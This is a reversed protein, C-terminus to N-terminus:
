CPNFLQWSNSLAAQILPTLMARIYILQIFLSEITQNTTLSFSVAGELLRCQTRPQIIGCSQGIQLHTQHRDLIWIFGFHLVLCRRHLFFRLNHKNDSVRKHCLNKPWLETQKGMSTAQDASHKWCKSYDHNEVGAIYECVLWQVM